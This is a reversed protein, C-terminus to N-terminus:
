AALLLGQRNCNAAEPQPGHRMMSGLRHRIILRSGSPGNRSVEFSVTSELFPPDKQTMRYHLSQAEDQTETMAHSFDHDPLWQDRLEPISIARLVKEPPADLEYELVLDAVEDQVTSDTM